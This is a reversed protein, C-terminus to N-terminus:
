SQTPLLSPTVILLAGAFSTTTHEARASACVFHSLKDPLARGVGMAQPIRQGSTKDPPSTNSASTTVLHRKPPPKDGRDCFRRDGDHTTAASALCTRANIMGIMSTMFRKRGSEKPSGFGIDRREPMLLGGVQSRRMGAHPRHSIESLSCSSFLVCFSALDQQFSADVRTEDLDIRRVTM